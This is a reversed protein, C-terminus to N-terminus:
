DLGDWWILNGPQWVPDNSWQKDELLEQGMFIMPIGPATLLLTSAVRARSRAWWSRPNGPDALKPVREGRGFDVEDHNEVCQVLRWANTFGAPWLSRALRGM